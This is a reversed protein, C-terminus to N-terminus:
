FKEMGEPENPKVEWKKRYEELIYEFHRKPSRNHEPKAADLKIFENLEKSITITTTIAKTM